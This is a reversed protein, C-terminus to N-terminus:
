DSLGINVVILPINLTDAEHTTNTSHDLKFLSLSASIEADNIKQTTSGFLVLPQGFNFVIELAGDLLELKKELYIENGFLSSIKSSFILKEECNEYGCNSGDRQPIPVYRYVKVMFSVKKNQFDGKLSFLKVTSGVSIELDPIKVFTFSQFNSPLQYDKFKKQKAITELDLFDTEIIEKM